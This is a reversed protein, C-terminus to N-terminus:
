RDTAHPGRISQIRLMGLIELCKSFKWVTDYFNLILNSIYCFIQLAFILIFNLFYNLTRKQVADEPQFTEALWKQRDIVELSIPTPELRFM